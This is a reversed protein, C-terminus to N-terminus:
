EALHKRVKSVLDDLDLNSKILYDAPEVGIIDKEATKNAIELNTLFITPVRSGYDNTTRLRRLMEFGSMGPMNIDLLILDPRNSLAESLGSAGDKAQLVLFGEATLRRTYLKLIQAEDEVVLIVQRVGGAGIQTGM